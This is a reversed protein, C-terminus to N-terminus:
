MEHKDKNSAAEEILATRKFIRLDKYRALIDIYTNKVEQRSAEMEATLSLVKGLNLYYLIDEKLQLAETDDSSEINKCELTRQKLREGLSIYNEQFHRNISM